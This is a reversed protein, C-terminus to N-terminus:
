NSGAGAAGPNQLLWQQALAQRQQEELLKKQLERM